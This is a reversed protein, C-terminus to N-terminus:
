MLVMVSLRDPTLALRGAISVVRWLRRFYPPMDAPGLPAFGWRAYFPELEARCTLYLPRSARGILYEIVARAIGLHRHEPVVAISALELIAGPHPKLQGCGILAGGEDIAVVFRHWDLGM